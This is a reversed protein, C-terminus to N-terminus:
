IGSIAFIYNCVVGCIDGARVIDDKELGFYSEGELGAKNNSLINHFIFVMISKDCHKDIM